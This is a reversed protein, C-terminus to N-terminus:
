AIVFRRGLPPIGRDAAARVRAAAGRGTAPGHVQNWPQTPRDQGTGSAGGCRGTGRRTGAQNAGDHGEETASLRPTDGCLTPRSRSARRIAPHYLPWVDDDSLLIPNISPQFPPGAEDAIAMSLGNLPWVRDDPSRFWPLPRDADGECFVHGADFGLPWPGDSWTAASVYGRAPDRDPDVSGGGDPPDPLLAGGGLFLVVSVAWVAVSWGRHPLRAASPRYLGIVAWAFVVLSALVLVAGM